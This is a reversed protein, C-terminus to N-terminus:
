AVEGVMETHHVQSVHDKHYLFGDAGIMYGKASRKEFCGHWKNIEPDCESCLPDKKDEGKYPFQHHWYNCVATNEICGCKTCRFLSM